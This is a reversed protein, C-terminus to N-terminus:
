ATAPSSSTTCNRGPRSMPAATTPRTPSPPPARSLGPTWSRGPIGQPVRQQHGSRPNGEPRGRRPRQHGDHSFPRQSRVPRSTQGTCDLLTISSPFYSHNYALVLIEKRGDRDFDEIQFFRIMFVDDYRTTGFVLSRGPQYHWLGEGREDLCHLIAPRLPNALSQTAVLIERTGDGDLDAVADLRGGSPMPYGMSHRTGVPWPTPSPGSGCSRTREDLATLTRGDLRIGAVPRGAASRTATSLRWAAAALLLLGAAAATKWPFVRRRQAAEGPTEPEALRGDAESRGGPGARLRGAPKPPPPLRVSEIPAPPAADPTQDSHMWRDLEDAFAFVRELGEGPVRHM